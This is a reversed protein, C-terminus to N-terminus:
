WPVNLEAKGAELWKANSSGDPETNVRASYGGLWEGSSGRIYEAYGYNGPEDTNLGVLWYHTNGNEDTYEYRFAETESVRDTIDKEEGNVVFIMKGDRFEVPNTMSDTYLYSTTQTVGKEDTEEVIELNEGWGFVHRILKNGYAYATLSLATLLAACLCAAALKRGPRFHKERNTSNMKEELLMKESAHLVGFAQKYKERNMM